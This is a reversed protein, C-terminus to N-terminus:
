PGVKFANVTASHQVGHQRSIDTVAVAVVSAARIIQVQMEEKQIPWLLMICGANMM